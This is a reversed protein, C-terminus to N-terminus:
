YRCCNYFEKGFSNIKKKQLADVLDKNQAPYIFSILTSSDKLFGLEDPQPQRIKLIIDLFFFKHLTKMNQKETPPHLKYDDM